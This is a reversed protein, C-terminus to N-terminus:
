NTLVLSQTPRKENRQKMSTSLVGYGQKVENGLWSIM